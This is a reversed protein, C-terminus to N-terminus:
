LNNVQLFCLFFRHSFSKVFISRSVVGPEEFVAVYEVRFDIQHGVHQFIRPPRERDTAAASEEFRNQGFLVTDRDGVADFRRFSHGFDGALPPHLHRDRGGFLGIEAAAVVIRNEEVTGGAVDGIQFADDAFGVVGQGFAAPDDQDVNRFLAGVTHQVVQGFGEARPIMRQERPGIGLIGIRDFEDPDGVPARRGLLDLQEFFGSEPIEAEGLGEGRV